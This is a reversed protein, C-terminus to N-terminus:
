SRSVTEKPTDEVEVHVPSDVFDMEQGMGRSKRVGKSMNVNSVNSKSTHTLTLPSTNNETITIAITKHSKLLQSM